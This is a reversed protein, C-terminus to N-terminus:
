PKSETEDTMVWLETEAKNLLDSLLQKLHYSGDFSEEMLAKRLARWEKVRMTITMSMEINEISVFKMTGKASM